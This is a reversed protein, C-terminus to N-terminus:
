SAKPEKMASLMRAFRISGLVMVWLSAAAFGLLFTSWDAFRAAPEIFRLTVSGVLLAM